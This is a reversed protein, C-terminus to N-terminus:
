TTITGDENLVQTGRPVEGSITPGIGLVPTIIQNSTVKVNRFVCVAKGDNLHAVTYRERIKLKTIDRLKDEIVDMTPEEDVILAGINNTDVLYIDTLRTVPNYPVFPSVIIALPLGLYNPLKLGQEIGQNFNINPSYNGALANPATGSTGGNPAFKGMAGQGWPDKNLNGVPGSFWAGGNGGLALHRMVPDTAFMTYTLPHVILANPIFGQAMMQGYAEYINDVNLSGNGAGDLGRGTTVGFISGSPAVNDHTVTGVKSLMNWVKSEKHRALAKGAAALHMSVVDYQSYRKMEETFKLALGSKGITAIKVGPGFNLSREPYEAGEDVDAAYTAGISPLTIMQGVKYNIRILLKSGILLPEVAERVFNEVTVKFFYPADPSSLADTMEVRNVKPEVFDKNEIVNGDDDKVVEQEEIRYGNNRWLLEFEKADQFKIKSM